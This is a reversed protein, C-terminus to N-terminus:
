NCLKKLSNAQTKLYDRVQSCGKELLGKLSIDSVDWLLVLKDAGASALWKSDSSFSVTHVSGTHGSLTTILTGDQQWLNIKGDSSASAIIKGNPSFSADLVSGTHGSLTTILTGDRQWLKITKDGATIITQGESSFGVSQIQSTHAKEWKKLVKGEYSWLKITKDDGVTAITRKDSSFAVSLVRASSNDLTIPERGDLSWLKATGDASASAITHGDPSFSVSMVRNKHEGLTRLAQGDASWLRITRDDGSVITKGDPSFSVANVKGKHETLTSLLKGDRSWIRITGDSSASAIRKDDRSFKAGLVNDQHGALVTLGSRNVQWFKTINDNGATALMNGDAPSFAISPIAGEHGVWTDLLRGDRAWLRISGDKSGSAIIQADKSVSVSWVESQLKEPPKFTTLLEGEQNWLKVTGDLSGTAFFSGDPSFDASVVDNSYKNLTKLLKKGDQSWLKVTKDDSVTIMRDGKPSFSVQRVLGKHEKLTSLLQGDLRWLKVTGDKGGTAITKGDRSFSVSMVRNQHAQFFRISNGNNDWLRVTGDRSGSAITKRDPSFRVSMVQQTHGELTKFLSGDRRWLKVTNDYSATALLKGDPSFSVSQVFNTHGQLRNQERVWNVSQALNTLVDAQVQQDTIGGPLQQLHKGAKLVDILADFSNRNATFNAKSSQNLAQIQGIEAQRWQYGAFIAFGAFFVSTISTVVIQRKRAEEEQKQERDRLAVSAQIFEQEGASIDERRQKLKEEGELLAAGRLLAGEDRQTQEWQYMASRLRDQWARFSRDANMWQRLEGWNRILAEHVVEVTEQNASNQSTVVLRNDALQKVLGWSAEGLEAKTALRRTDETGEGPRVLQIFIRRVQEKQTASLNGYNEDAHRALAGKVEGIEEYATHTLQKGTRRKWLETLAFELLPLNGPNDEVDDLIREVLGDQFTVGLNSAPKEIVQSLEERNMPGLKIDANQLVDALPRYSLLNGLFDARMTGVLVTNNDPDSQFCTLLTDLFSHRIKQDACLTYLEEFQDAILLVRHNPYNRKIKSFVDQLPVSGNAFYEALRRAQFMQETANQNPEYLPVLSEALAQFPESGPRFHTFKWYGQKQLKPVLGALVVSSKGSGSAGLVPIFKRRQTAAFLEEVFVERGFFFEADDPGFHFLGRYPCPLSEDPADTSNVPLVTTNERYYYNTITITATNRDGTIIASSLASGGVSASRDEETM